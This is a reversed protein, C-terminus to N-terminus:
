PDVRLLQANKMAMAGKTARLEAVLQVTQREEWVTFEYIVECWDSSNVLANDRNVGSIRLGAGAGRDDNKRPEVDDVRLKAQLRYYGQPLLVTKRWSAVCDSSEGVAISYVVGDDSPDVSTESPDIRVLQTDQTEQQPDWDDLPIPEGDGFEMVSADQEVVPDPETLQQAICLFREHLRNQLQAVQGDIEAIGDLNLEVLTPRIKQHLQQVRGALRDGDFLPLLKAVRQRFQENWEPNSRVSGSVIAPSQGFTQFGPDQFMQDMGHPLFWARKSDPPFYIRYNNRNAVYGDWHCAMMEFAMFTLLAEVELRQGMQRLRTEPDEEACAENLERLDSLDNPGDGSDKELESDIDQCFGGDYLNGNADRFHRQLFQRDFGEKVVYLGLDRDNLWVRAHTVRPAPIGAERCISSCLWENVYLEDQVSNNLHFKQLQHFSQQKRYKNANITFAPKEDLQRFSGAAGKLKLGVELRMGGEETLTSRVYQRPNESLLHAQDDSLKLVIRHVAENEFFDDSEDHPTTTIRSELSDTGKVAPTKVSSRSTSPRCGFAVVLGLLLFCPISSRSLPSLFM